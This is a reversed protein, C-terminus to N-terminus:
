SSLNDMRDELLKLRSATALSMMEEPRIMPLRRLSYADVAFRPLTDTKDLKLIAAIIDQCHADIESRTNPDKRRFIEGIIDSDGEQWM